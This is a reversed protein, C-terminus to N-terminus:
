GKKDNPYLIDAHDKGSTTGPLETSVPKDESIASSVRSLLRIFEPHNGMGSYNLAEKLEPTGFRDLANRAAQVTTDFKAGGIEKDSKATQVWDRQTEAWQQQQAESQRQQAKIFADTLKQANGKTVGAEKLLPSFEALAAEDLKVGDPIALEYKGDEPVADEPQKEGSDKAKEDDGDSKTETSKAEETSKNEDAGDEPYLVQEQVNDESGGGETDPAGAGAGDEPALCASSLLNLKFRYM